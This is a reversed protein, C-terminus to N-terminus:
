RGARRGGTGLKSNDKFELDTGEAFVRQLATLSSMAFTQFERDMAEPDVEQMKNLLLMRADHVKLTFERVLETVKVDSM